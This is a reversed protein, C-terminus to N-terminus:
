HLKENQVLVSFRFRIILAVRERVYNSRSLVQHRRDHNHKKTLIGLARSRVFDQSIIDKDSDTNVRTASESIAVRELQFLVM